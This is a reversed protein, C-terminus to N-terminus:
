SWCRQKILLHPSLMSQAESYCRFIRNKVMCEQRTDAQPQTYLWAEWTNGVRSFHTQTWDSICLDAWNQIILFTLILTDINFSMLTLYLFQPVYHLVPFGPPSYTKHNCLTPCSETGRGQHSLRYLRGTILSVQIGDRPQSSGRSFSM